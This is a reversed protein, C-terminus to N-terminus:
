ISAGKLSGIGLSGDEPVAKKVPEDEYSAESPCGPPDDLFAASPVFFLSGTVAKSFDLVRDYNGPPKGIFM